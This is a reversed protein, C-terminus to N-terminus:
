NYKENVYQYKENTYIDVSENIVISSLRSLIRDNGLVSITDDFIKKDYCSVSSPFIGYKKMGYITNSDQIMYKIFEELPKSSISNEGIYLSTGAETYFCDGGINFPIMNSVDYNTDNGKINNIDRYTVINFIGLSDNKENVSLVNREKLLKIFAEMKLVASNYESAYFENEDNNFQKLIVKLLRKEGEKDVRILIDKGKSEKYIEEGVSLLDNWTLIDDKSYGYDHLKEKDYLCVLPNSEIPIGYIKNNVKTQEIRASTFYNSNNIISNVESFKMNGILSTQFFVEDNFVMAYPVISENRFLKYQGKYDQKDALKVNIRVFNHESMFNEALDSLYNYYEGYAYIDFEGHLKDKLLLSKMECGSLCMAILIIIMITYIKKM